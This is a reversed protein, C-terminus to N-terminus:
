RLTSVRLSFTAVLSFDNKAGAFRVHALQFIGMKLLFYGTMTTKMPTGELLTVHCAPFYAGPFPSSGFQPLKM